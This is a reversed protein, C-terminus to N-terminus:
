FPLCTRPDAWVKKTVLVYTTLAVFVAATLAVAQLVIIGLGMEYYMACLVGVTYGECATFAFLLKRCLM